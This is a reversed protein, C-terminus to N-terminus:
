SIELTHVEEAVFHVKTRIEANFCRLLRLQDMVDVVTKSVSYVYPSSHVGLIFLPLKWGGNDFSLHCLVVGDPQNNLSHRFPMLGEKLISFVLDSKDLLHKVWATAHGEGCGIVRQSCSLGVSIRNMETPLM